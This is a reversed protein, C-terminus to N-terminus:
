NLLAADATSAENKAPESRPAEPAVPASKKRLRFTALWPLLDALDFRLVGRAFPQEDETCSLESHLTTMGGLITSLGVHKQGYLRLERGDEGRFTLDYILSGRRAKPRMTLTGTTPMSEGVGELTAEGELTFVGGDGRMARTAEALDPTFVRVTFSASMPRGGDVSRLEGAMTETFELQAAQEQARAALGADARSRVRASSEVRQEVFASARESLSMITIQPNVGLPGNVVSGDAIFLNPLEHAEQTPGVVSRRPDAGMRCTGLPHYATLDLHRAALTRPGERELREVDAEDRIV